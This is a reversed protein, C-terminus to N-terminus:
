AQANSTGAPPRSTAVVPNELIRRALEQFVRYSREWGGSRPTTGAMQRIVATMADLKRQTQALEASLRDYDVAYVFEAKRDKCIGICPQPGEIRGCGICQWATMREIM